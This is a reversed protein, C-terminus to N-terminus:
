QGQYLWFGYGGALIGVVALAAGGGGGVIAGILIAAGGGIMLGLGTKHRKDNTTTAALADDFAPSVGRVRPAAERTMRDLTAAAELSAGPAPVQSPTQARLAFPGVVACFLAIVFRM